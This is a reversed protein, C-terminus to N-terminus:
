GTRTGYGSHFPECLTTYNVLHCLLGAGSIGGPRSGIQDGLWGRWRTPFWRASSTPSRGGGDDVGDPPDSEQILEVLPRSKYTNGIRLSFSLISPMTSVSERSIGRFSRRMLTSIVLGSPRRRIIGSKTSSASAFAQIMWVRRSIGFYLGM